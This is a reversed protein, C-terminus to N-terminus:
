RAVSSVPTLVDTSVDMAVLNFAGEPRWKDRLYATDDRARLDIRPPALDARHFLDATARSSCRRCLTYEPRCVSGDYGCRLLM